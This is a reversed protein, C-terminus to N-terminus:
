QGETLETLEATEYGTDKGQHFKKQGTKRKKVEEPMKRTRRGQEERRIEEKQQQAAALKSAYSLKTLAVCNKKKM